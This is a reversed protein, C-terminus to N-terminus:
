TSLKKCIYEIYVIMVYAAIMMAISWLPNINTTPTFFWLIFRFASYDSYNIYNISLFQGFLRCCIVTLILLLFPLSKNILMDVFTQKKM